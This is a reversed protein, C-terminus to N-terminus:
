KQGLNYFRVYDVYMKSPLQEDRVPGGAWAANRMAYNLNVQVHLNKPVQRTWEFDKVKGYTRNKVKGGSFQFYPESKWAPGDQALYWFFEDETVRLGFTFFEYFNVKNEKIHHGHGHHAKYVRQKIFFHDDSRKVMSQSPIGKHIEKARFDHWWLGSWLRTKERAAIFEFMDIELLDEPSWGEVKHSVTWFAGYGGNNQPLKCRLELYMNNRLSYEKQTHVGGSSYTFTREKSWTKGAVPVPERKQTFILHGDELTINEKKYICDVAENQLNKKNIGLGWIKQNLEAGSFEDGFVFKAGPPGEFVANDSGCLSVAEVAWFIAICHITKLFKFDICPLPIM